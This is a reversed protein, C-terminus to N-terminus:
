SNKVSTFRFWVRTSIQSSVLYIFGVFFGFRASGSALLCGSGLGSGSYRFGLRDQVQGNADSLM